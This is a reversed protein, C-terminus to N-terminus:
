ERSPEKASMGLKGERARAAARFQRRMEVREPLDLVLATPRGRQDVAHEASLYGVCIRKFEKQGLHLGLRLNVARLLLRRDVPKRSARVMGVAM